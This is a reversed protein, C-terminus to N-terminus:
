TSKARGLAQQIARRVIVTLLRRKYDVPAAIYVIPRAEGTALEAAQQITDDTIERGRLVEEAKLARVPSSAVAGLVIRAESCVGNNPSISIASAASVLAFDVAGRVSHRLFAGGNNPSPSPIQVEAVLEDPQLRTAPEGIGTYLEELALVRDGGSSVIKIKAGSAILPVVTDASFLSYCRDGGKVVHCQEGGTKFCPPRSRRWYRSQNYYWCRTELCINGGITGMRRVQTSAVSGAATALMPLKGQILSSTEVHHITTVAGIRLGQQDDFDIYDLNPISKINVLYQPTSVRQKMRVLLDTGGAIVRAQERYQSLMSCAEELTQPAFYDFKSLPM